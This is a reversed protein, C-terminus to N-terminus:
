LKLSSSTCWISNRTSTPNSSLSPIDSQSYATATFCLALVAFLKKM